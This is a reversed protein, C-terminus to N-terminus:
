PYGAVFAHGSALRGEFITRPMPKGFLYGQALRCGHTKLYEAQEPTEVGEAVSELRLAAAISLIAKVLECKDRQKPIDKVFSRDIKLQSVPFSNLYSLASYGTGFDDISISLGIGHLAALTGSMEVSDDLLLSETIELELWEAKCGTEALIRCVSGVLDNRVFQRTSVNVAIKLPIKRERNWDVATACATRLVWEGIDVILGSEEAIPIFRDPMVMGHGPRNWRLLAEAGAVRGTQLEIQPQFHLALEGNKQAKRLAAEIEMRDLSHMSLEKAYFQFNNRGMKKAHYMATDAYKYLADIEASDGPYRAIGISGTVFLERGNIVFPEALQCLIKDAITALDGDTCADPLLIAFEDGGLRALTDYVRVCNQMRRAAECLLQDGVSHGLTDNVEKFHDLDLFMLGFQGGDCTGDAMTLSIQDALLLRNPLRTLNDYFAQHHVKKRYQDIETIDRGVALVYAVAGSSDFEPTMRNHTCFEVDGMPWRSEFSQDEGGEFVQRLMNVYELAAASDRIQATTTTTGFIRAMETALQPNAYVRRYDRDYRAITDPSNEVLARFKEERNRLQEEMHKRETIDLMLGHWLIGGDTEQVPVSRAEIWREPRSPRQARFEIQFPTLARASEAIAAEIRPLDEPHAMALLPAMDDRVDEPRLGFFEKIGDSAFPFCGHGEPSVHFSYVFGPVNGLFQNLQREVDRNVTIDRGFALVGDVEGCADREPTMRIHHYRKGAGIDPLTVYCDATEGSAIVRKIAAEYDDFSGDPHAESPTKDLWEAAPVGQLAELQPNLYIIHCQLDYRAINDPANEALTRFERERKRLLEEIHKRETVDRSVLLVGAVSGDAAREPGFHNQFHSLRGDPGLHEVECVFPQGTELVSRIGRVLLDNDTVASVPTESPTRGVLEEFTKGTIREVAPSVYTRRGDRDYRFIPDPLNEVLTHFDRERRQLLEEMRKRETIDCVYGNWIIGGDPHHQPKTHSEMWREGRTPHLIRYEERWPLMTRASAAISEKVRLADDPHNRMLLPSADDVVDQPRLGFHEWINPSVYPMCVTGDPRLHFSGMMGPSSEALSRLEQERAAVVEQLRFQETMDRGIGLVGIIEGHEDWEPTLSVEHLRTAGDEQPILLRDFRQPQGTEIVNAIAQDLLAFHGDPFAEGITKGILEAAPSQVTLEYAPNVYRYHGERDWRAICDPLNDALSHFEREGKLALEEKQKYEGVIERLRRSNEHLDATRDALQRELSERSAQFQAHQAEVQQQLAHLQLRLDDCEVVEDIQLPKTANGVGDTTFTERMPKLDQIDSPHIRGTGHLRVFCAALLNM